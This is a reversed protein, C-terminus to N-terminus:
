SGVVEEGRLGGLVDFHDRGTGDATGAGERWVGCGRGGGRGAVAAAGRSLGGLIGAGHLLEGLAGVSGDLLVVLLDVLGKIGDVAGLVVAALPDSLFM